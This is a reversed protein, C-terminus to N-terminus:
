GVRKRRKLPSYPDVSFMTGVGFAGLALGTTLVRSWGPLFWAYALVCGLAFVTAGVVVYRPTLIQAPDAFAGLDERTWRLQIVMAVVSTLIAALPIGAYGVAYLGVVMAPVRVLSEVLQAMSGRMVNGAARYLYNIAFSSGALIVQAGILITLPDGGYQGAGVWTAVFSRNLAVFATVLGIALSLRLTTLQAHLLLSRQRQESGVLHAFAGYSAFAVTDLLARLVEAGRKTFNFMTVKDPGLVLGILFSESQNKLAYSLGGLATAPLIRLYEVGIHRTPRFDTLDGKRLHAVVVWLSGAVAFAARACLGYPISWLGDGRRVSWFSVAFLAASGLLSFANFATTDQVGRTYGLVANSALVIGTAGGALQLCSTLLVADQGHLGLLVPMFPALLIAIVSLAAGVVALVIAGTAFYRGVLQRDGRGHAAGIRQIMLNPLGLDFAMMWYLFDGSALWAGYVRGGIAHQWLPMLVLAQVSLILTNLGTAVFTGAAAKRRSPSPAAKPEDSPM